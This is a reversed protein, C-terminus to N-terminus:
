QSIYKPAAICACPDLDDAQVQMAINDRLAQRAYVFLVYVAQCPDTAPGTIWALPTTTPSSM